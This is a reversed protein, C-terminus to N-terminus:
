RGRKRLPQRDGFSAHLMDAGLAIGAVLDALECRLHAAPLCTPLFPPNRQGRELLSIYTPDVGCLEALAQQTVREAGETRAARIRKGLAILPNESGAMGAISM